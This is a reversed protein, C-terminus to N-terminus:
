GDFMRRRCEVGGCRRFREVSSVFLYDGELRLYADDSWQWVGRLTRFVNEIPTEMAVNTPEHIQATKMLIYFQNVLEKGRKAMEEDLGKSSILQRTSLPEAQKPDNVM